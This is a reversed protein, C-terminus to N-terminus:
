SQINKNEYSYLLSVESAEHIKKPLKITVLTLLHGMYSYLKIAMNDAM